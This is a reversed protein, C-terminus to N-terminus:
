RVAPQIGDVETGFVPLIEGGGIEAYLRLSDHGSRAHIAPERGDHGHVHDAVAPQDTGVLGARERPDLGMPDFEDLGQDGLVVAAHDLESAVAGQDLEGARDIGDFARDRDLVPIASRSAASGSSRRMRYRMPMLM